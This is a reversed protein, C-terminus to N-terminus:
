SVGKVIPYDCSFIKNNANQMFVCNADFLGREKSGSHPPIEKAERAVSDLKVDCSTNNYLLGIM